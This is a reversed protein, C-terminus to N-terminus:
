YRGIIYIAHLYQVVSIFTSLFSSLHVNSLVIIKIPLNPLINNTINNSMFQIERLLVLDEILNIYPNPLNLLNIYMALMHVYKGNLTCDFLGENAELGM